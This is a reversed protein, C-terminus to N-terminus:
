SSRKSTLDDCLGDTFDAVSTLVQDPEQTWILQGATDLICLRAQLLTSAFRRVGDILVVNDQAGHCFLVPCRVRATLASWDSSVRLIDNYFARYGQMTAFEFRKLLLPLIDPAHSHEKDLGGDSHYLNFMAEEGQSRLRQIGGMIMIPLLAPAHRAARASIRHGRSMGSIQWSQVMPVAGAVSCLGSVRDPHRDALVFGYFTGAMHGLVPVTELGLHDLLAVCDTITVDLPDGRRPVPDAKGFHPRVPAILRINHRLLAAETAPIMDLSDILGHLFLVPRGTDPGIMKFRLLRGDKLSLEHWRAFVAKSPAPDTTEPPHLFGLNRILDL